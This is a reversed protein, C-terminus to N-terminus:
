AKIKEVGRLGGRLRLDIVDAAPRLVEVSPKAYIQRTTNIDRHGALKSIREMPIGDEDLWSLVTHRLTHPTVDPGLGARVVAATFGKRIKKVPEGDWSVVYDGISTKRAEQLATRAEATMPVLSRAKRAAKTLPNIALKERFDITGAEFNVRDWTLRCIAESRASTTIALIIFLRIHEASCGDMLQLVEAETMVRQKAEPKSPVWVYPPKGIHHHKSAWNFCSRLRTLETWVTGQSRGATIRDEAYQRCVRANVDSFRMQAFTAELAKWNYHFTAVLKGDRERDAVYLNWLDMVKNSEQAVIVQEDAVYKELAARGESESFVGLRYRRPKRSEDRWCVVAEDRGLKLNHLMGLRYKGVAYKRWKKGM